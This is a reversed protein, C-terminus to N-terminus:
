LYKQPDVPNGNEMVTFHLHCGTSWGTTGVYGVVDGRGVTAGVGVNYRSLHNYIVTIFNGNVMGVNLYLRNGWVSSYYETLVKGGGAAFLPAGCPAGFDDGDHLGWYHYIPHERYGFPSTVPGNVPPMLLGNIDVPPGGKNAKAAARAAKRRARERAKRIAEQILKQIKAEQKKLKRLAKRDKMKAEFAMAEADKRDGVLSRVREKADLAEQTLGQMAVLHDAAEQRKEAVEATAGEVENEHVKLLVEAARLDDFENGQRQVVSRNAERQRTIDAPTQSNLLSSFALLDPDGQEYLSTITDVVVERQSKLADKGTAVDTRAQALRAEAASLAARMEEDRQQAIALRARVDGLEARAETLQGRAHSLAQTARRLAGSSEDLEHDAKELKNHVARQRDRLEGANASPGSLVSLLGVGVALAAVM